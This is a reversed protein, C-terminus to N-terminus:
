KEWDTGRKRERELERERERKREERERGRESERENYRHWIRKVASTLAWKRMGLTQKLEDVLM